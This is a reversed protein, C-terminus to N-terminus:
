CRPRPRPTWPPLTSTWCCCSPSRAPHGDAADAGPASRRLAPGGQQDSPRGAGSGANEATRLIRRAGGQHHRAQAHPCSGPPGGPGPERRDADDRRHGDDPGPVRPWHVQCAPAGSLRTVDKGTSSSQAWIWRGRRRRRREADHIQGRRQRRHRHCLRRGGADSGTGNLAVSRMSPEPTSPRTSIRSKLCQGQRGKKVPVKTFYKGKWYPITLFVAVVLATLLKLDNTTLGM